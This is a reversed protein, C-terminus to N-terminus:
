RMSSGPRSREPSFPSASGLLASALAWAWFAASIRWMLLYLVTSLILTLTGLLYSFRRGRVDATVGTPVEFIVLGATFFANAAFAQANRLGADLLFLTNIGWIFSAALTHLLMLLLYVRQVQRSKDNM